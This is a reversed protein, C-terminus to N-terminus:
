SEGSDHAWSELKLLSQMRERLEKEGLLAEELGKIRVHCLTLLTPQTAQESQAILVLM